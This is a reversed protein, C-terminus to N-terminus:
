IVGMISLQICFESNPNGGIDFYFQSLFETIEEGSAIEPLDVTIKKERLLGFEFIGVSSNALIICETRDCYFLIPKMYYGSSSLLM